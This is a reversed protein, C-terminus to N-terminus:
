VTFAIGSQSLGALDIQDANLATESAWLALAAQTTAGSNLQNVYPAIEADSAEHGVVNRYVQRVFDTNSHSGAAQAFLDSAVALASVDQASSGHDLLSLGAGVLDTRALAQKGFVAGILRAVTGAHGDLDLAIRTDKFQLREVDVLTDKGENGRTDALQWGETSRTLTFDERAGRYEAMDIGANGDLVDNGGRGAMWDDGNSGNFWDAEKFLYDHLGELDWRDTIPNYYSLIKLLSWVMDIIQLGEDLSDVLDIRFIDGLPLLEGHSYRLGQGFIDLTLGGLSERYHDSKLIDAVADAGLSLFDFSAIDLAKSLTWTSM